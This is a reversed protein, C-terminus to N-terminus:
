RTQPAPIQQTICHINGGGLLIERCGPVVVVKRYERGEKGDYQTQLVEQARRDYVPDGFGPVVVGGNCLYFNIYSAPMRYGPAGRPPGDEPDDAPDGPARSTDLPADEPEDLGEAEEETVHMAGPQHVKVVTLRRGCADRAAELRRLADSSRPFQPDAPDDTWLLAVVSPRLFCAINDIHGNTDGDHYVGAGLWIIKEVALTRKLHAEIQEKTLHPNRNKNLLCEETVLLTGEGDVHISGGEMVIKVRHRPIREIQLVKHAVFRDRDWPHYCGGRFGGWSNFEWHVGIRGGKDNVLVTPGTDRIWSDNSAMEVVRVNAPLMRRANSWQESPACVTVPEFEGIASAVRAFAAQAKKGGFRWNDPRVPWIMYTGAHPEFEGPMRYGAPLDAVDGFDEAM